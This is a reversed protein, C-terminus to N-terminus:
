RVRTVPYAKPDAKIVALERGKSKAQLFADFWARTVNQYDYEAGGKFRVRLVSVNLGGSTENRWGAAEINSSRIAQLPVGPEDAPPRGIERELDDFFKRRMQLQMEATTVDLDDGSAKAQELREEATDLAARAERWRIRDKVDM